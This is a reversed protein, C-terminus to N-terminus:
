KRYHWDLHTAAPQLLVVLSPPIQVVLTFSVLAFHDPGVSCENKHHCPSKTSQKINYPTDNTILATQWESSM